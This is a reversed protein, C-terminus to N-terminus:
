QGSGAAVLCSLAQLAAASLAVELELHLVPRPTPAIM